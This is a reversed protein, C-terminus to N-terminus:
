TTQDPIPVKVETVNKDPQAAPEAPVSEAAATQAPQPSPAAAPAKATDVLEGEAGIFGIVQGVPVMDDVAVLQQLLVGDGASEVEMVAKDTEIELIVEGHKVPDGINKKWEVIRVEETTQDPIPVKVETAM